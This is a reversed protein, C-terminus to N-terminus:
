KKKEDKLESNQDSAKSKEESTTNSFNETSNEEEKVKEFKEEEVVKKVYEKTPAEITIKDNDVVITEGEFANVIVKGGTDNALELKHMEDVTISTKKGFFKQIKEKSSLDVKVM